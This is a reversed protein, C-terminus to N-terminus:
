LSQSKNIIESRRRRRRRRWFVWWLVAALIFLILIWNYILLYIFDVFEYWGGYISQKLKESTSARQGPTYRFETPQYMTLNITSFTVQNSLYRLRGMTSELEEELERIREQIELIEQVSAAGKLLEQYRTLYIRKNALRIELDIYEETVDKAEITKRTIENGGREIQMIFQEFREAPIRIKLQLTVRHSTKSLQENEYYGGLRKLLTDTKRKEAGLDKVELELTGNKILKRPIAEGPESSEEVAPDNLAMEYELDDYSETAMLVFEGRKKSECSCLILLAFVLCLYQKM